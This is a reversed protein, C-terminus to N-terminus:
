DGRGGATGRGRSRGRRRGSNGVGSGRQYIVTSNGEDGEDSSSDIENDNDPASQNQEEVFHEDVDSSASDREVESENDGDSCDSNELILKRAEQASYCRKAAM